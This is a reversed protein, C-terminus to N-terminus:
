KKKDDTFFCVIAMIIFIIGGIISQTHTVPPANGRLAYSVDRDSCISRLGIGFLIIGIFINKLSSTVKM